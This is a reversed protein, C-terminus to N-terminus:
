HGGEPPRHGEPIGSPPRRGEPVRAPPTQAGDDGSPAHRGPGHRSPGGTLLIVGAALVVVLAIIGFVKVWRPTGIPGGALEAAPEDGVPYTPPDAM